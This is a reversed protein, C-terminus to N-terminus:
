FAGQCGVAVGGLFSPSCSFATEKESSTGSRLGIWLAAGGIALAGGVTAVQAALRLSENRQRRSEFDNTSLSKAAIADRTDRANQDRVVFLVGGTALAAVGVGGLVWPVVSARAPPPSVKTPPVVEPRKKEEAVAVGATLVLERTTHAAISVRASAVVAGNRRAAVLHVGTGIALPAKLPAAGKEVDDVLITTDPPAVVTLTGFLDEMSSAERELSEREGKPLNKEKLISRIATLAEEFRGLHRLCVARNVAASRTPKLELSREFEIRAAEYQGDESLRLGRAFAAKAADENGRGANTPAADARTAALTAVLM